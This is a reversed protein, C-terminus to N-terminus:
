LARFIHGRMFTRTCKVQEIHVDQKKLYKNFRKQFLVAKFLSQVDCNKILTLVAVMPEEVTESVLKM